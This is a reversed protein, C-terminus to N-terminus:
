AIASLALMTLTRVKEDNLLLERSLATYSAENLHQPVSCLTGTFFAQFDAGSRARAELFAQKALKQKKEDFEGQRPTGKVASWTLGYKTNLKEMLYRQVVKYILAEVEKVSEVKEDGM